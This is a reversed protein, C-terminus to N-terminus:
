ADHKPRTAFEIPIKVQSGTGPQFRWQSYAELAAGDLQKNGTGQLMRAGTVKGSQQDITVLVVGKGALGQKAWEPRYVPQPTFVPKPVRLPLSNAPSATASSLSNAFDAPLLINTLRWSLGTRTLVLKMQGTKEVGLTIFFRSPSDYGYSQSNFIRDSTKKDFPQAQQPKDSFPEIKRTLVQSLGYPTIYAEVIKDAFNQGLMMGLAAFPSDKIEGMEQSTVIYHLQDKLNSRLTPFDIDHSLADADSREMAGKIRTATRHPSFYAWLTLSLVTVTVAIVACLWTRGARKSRPPPSQIHTNM